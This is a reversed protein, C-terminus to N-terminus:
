LSLWSHSHFNSQLRYLPVLAWKRYLLIVVNLTSIQSNKNSQVCDRVWSMVTLIACHSHYPHNTQNGRWLAVRIKRGTKLLDGLHGLSMAVPSDSGERTGQRMTEWQKGHKDTRHRARRCKKWSHDHRHDVAATSTAASRCVTVTWHDAGSSNSM